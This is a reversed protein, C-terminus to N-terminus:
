PYRGRFSQPANVGLHASAQDFRDVSECHLRGGACHEPSFEAAQPPQPDPTVADDVLYEVVLQRNQYYPDPM